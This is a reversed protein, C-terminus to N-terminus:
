RSLAPQSERETRDVSSAAAELRQAYLATINPARNQSQAISRVEVAILRAAQADVPFQELAALIGVTTPARCPEETTLGDIGRQLVGRVHAATEMLEATDPNQEDERSRPSDMPALEEEQGKGRARLGPRQSAPADPGALVYITPRPRNHEDVSEEIRILGLRALERLHGRLRRESVGSLRSLEALTDGTRHTGDRRRSSAEALALLANRAPVHLAAPLERRLRELDELALWAFPPLRDDRVSM